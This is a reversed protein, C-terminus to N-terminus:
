PSAFSHPSKSDYMRHCAVKRSAAAVPAAPAAPATAAASAAVIGAQGGVGRLRAPRAPRVQPNIDTFALCVDDEYIINAPIDKSVIKDFLTAEGGDGQGGREAAAAAAAAARAKEEEGSAASMHRTLRAIRTGPSISVPSPHCTTPTRTPLAHLQFRCTCTKIKQLIRNKINRHFSIKINLKCEYISRYKSLEINSIIVNRYKEVRPLLPSSFVPLM